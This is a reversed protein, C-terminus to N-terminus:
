RTAVDAYMLLVLIAIVLVAMLFVIRNASRQEALHMFYFAVLAGKVTAILLAVPMHLEGLAALSLVFTLTTLVLLALWTSAYIRAAAHHRM